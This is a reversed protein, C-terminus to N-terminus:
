LPIARMGKDDIYLDAVIKRSNGGFLEKIEELNDNVADFFLGREACWEVAKELDTGERCTWLIIRDGEQRCRKIHEIMKPYPEGIEPWANRCLTGDFDVAIIERKM